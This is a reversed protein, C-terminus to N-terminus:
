LDPVLFQSSFSVTLFILQDHYALILSSHHRQFLTPDVANFGVTLDLLILISETSLRHIDSPNQFIFNQNFLISFISVSQLPDHSFRFNFSLRSLGKSSKKRFLSSPLFLILTSISTKQIYHSFNFQVCKFYMQKLILTSWSLLVMILFLFIQMVGLMDVHSLLGKKKSRGSERECGWAVVTRSDTALFKNPNGVIKYLPIM